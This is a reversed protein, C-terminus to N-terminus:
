PGEWEALVVRGTLWEVGVQFGRAERSLIVRGGTSSGDPFFRVAGIGDDRMESEAALLKLDLSEPLQTVPFPGDIKFVREEVDMTFAVATGRRIAEERTLKLGAAVRRAAAKLEVGPIAASIMPPVLAVLILALAMVVVLELLTFGAAPRTPRM